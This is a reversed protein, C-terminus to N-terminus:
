GGGVFRVIELIDEEQLEVKEYDAKPVIQGNREVAVMRCDFQKTALYATLTLPKELCIKEGNVRM